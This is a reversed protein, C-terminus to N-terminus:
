STTGDLRQYGHRAKLPEPKWGPVCTPCVDSGRQASAKGTSTIRAPFRWGAAYAAARAEMSTRFQEGANLETGCGDCELIVSNVQKASM